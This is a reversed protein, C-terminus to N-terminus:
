ICATCQFSFSLGWNAMMLSLVAKTALKIGMWIKCKAVHCISCVPNVFLNSLAYLDVWWYYQTWTLLPLWVLKTARLRSLFVFLLISSITLRASNNRCFQNFLLHKYKRLFNSAQLAEAKIKIVFCVYKIVSHRSIGFVNSIKQM